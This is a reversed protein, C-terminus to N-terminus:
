YDYKESQRIILYDYKDTIRNGAATGTDEAGDLRKKVEIFYLTYRNEEGELLKFYTQLESDLQVKVDLLDQYDVVMQSLEKQLEGIQDERLKFQIEGTDALQRLEADLDTIKRELCDITTENEKITKGLMQARAKYLSSKEYDYRVTNLDNHAAQSAESLKNEYFDCIEIRNQTFRAEFDDRMAQIQKQYKAQYHREKEEVFASFDLQRKKCTEDM